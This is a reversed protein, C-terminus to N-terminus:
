GIEALLAEVRQKFVRDMPRDRAAKLFPIAPRGIAKLGREAAAVVEPEEGDQLGGILTECAAPSAIRALADFVVPRVAVTYAMSVLFPVDREDAMNAIAAVAMHDMGILDDGKLRAIRLLLPMARRDKLQGLLPIACAWYGHRERVDTEAIRMLLPVSDATASGSLSCVAQMRVSGPEKGDGAIAELARRM